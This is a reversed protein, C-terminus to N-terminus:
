TAPPLTVATTMVATTRIAPDTPLDSNTRLTVIAIQMLMIMALALEGTLFAATWFRPRAGTASRGGDKLVRNVDTQSAHLAPVLGFIVVTILSMAVLALFVSGDMSYVMWYPLTGEPIASEFAAVGAVSILGGLAGGVVALGAAEVLLQRVIRSRSAGLSTRLAIEPSRHM